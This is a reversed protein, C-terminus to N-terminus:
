FTNKAFYISIIYFNLFDFKYDIEEDRKVDFLNLIM